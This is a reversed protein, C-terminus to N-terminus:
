QASPESVSGAEDREVLRKLEILSATTMSKVEHAISERVHRPIFPFPFSYSAFLRVRTKGEEDSFDWELWSKLGAISASVIREDEVFEVIQLKARVPIGRFWGRVDVTNVIGRAPGPMLDLRSFHKEYKTTNRYDAVFDFVRHRPADVLISQDTQPM